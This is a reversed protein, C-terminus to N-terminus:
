GSGVGLWAKRNLATLFTYLASPPCRLHSTMLTFAHELGCVAEPQRRFGYHYSFGEVPSLRAPEIGAEPVM